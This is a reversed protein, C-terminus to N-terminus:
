DIPGIIQTQPLILFPNYSYPTFTSAASILSLKWSCAEKERAYKANVGFGDLSGLRVCSRERLSQETEVAEATSLSPHTKDKRFKNINKKAFENGSEL